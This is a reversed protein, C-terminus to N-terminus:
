RIRDTKFTLSSLDDNTCIIEFVPRGSIAFDADSFVEVVDIYSNLTNTLLKISYSNPVLEDEFVFRYVQGKKWKVKSDDIIINLDANMVLRVGNNTHRFYNTFSTLELFQVKTIDNESSSTLNYQQNVNNIILRNPTTKDVSIGLGSKIVDLNYSKNSYM